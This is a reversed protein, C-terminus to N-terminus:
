SSSNYIIISRIHRAIRDYAEFAEPTPFAQSRKTQEDPVIASTRIEVYQEKENTNYRPTIMLDPLEMRLLMNKLNFDANLIEALRGGKWEFGTVKERLLGEKIPRTEANLEGELNEVIGHVLYGFYCYTV